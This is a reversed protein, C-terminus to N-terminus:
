STLLFFVEDTIITIRKKPPFLLLKIRLDIQPMVDHEGKKEEVGFASHETV